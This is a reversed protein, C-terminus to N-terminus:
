YINILMFYTKTTRVSDQWGNPSSAIAYDGCDFHRGVLSDEVSINKNKLIFVPVLCKGSASISCIMTVHEVKGGYTTIPVPYIEKDYLVMTTRKSKEANTTTEDINIILDQDYPHNGYITTLREFFDRFNEYTCAEIRLAEVERPVALSLKSMIYNNKPIYAQCVKEGGSLIEKNIFETAQAITICHGSSQCDRVYLLLMDEQERTLRRPRGSSDMGRRSGSIYKSVTSIPLDLVVAIHSKIYKLQKFEDHVLRVLDGNHMEPQRSIYERVNEIINENISTV